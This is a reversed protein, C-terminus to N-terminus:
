LTRLSFSGPSKVEGALVSGWLSQMQESSVSAASDRWRYMWDDNISEAPVPSDDRSLTAEAHLLAKAVNVEERIANATRAHTVSSALSDLDLTPEVKGDPKPAVTGILRMATGSGSIIKLGKRIDDADKEAQALLLTEQRRVEVQALGERKIQWPKLLSGIARDACSEWLKIILKEGPIDM